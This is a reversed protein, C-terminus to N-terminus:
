HGVHGALVEPSLSSVVSVLNEERTFCFVSGEGLGLCGRCCHRSELLAREEPTLALRELPLLFVSILAGEDPGGGAGPGSRFDIRLGQVGSITQREWGIYLVDRLKPLGRLERGTARHYETRVTDKWSCDRAPAQLVSGPLRRYEYVCARSASAHTPRAPSSVLLILLGSAGLLLAAWAARRLPARSRGGAGGLRERLGEPAVAREARESVLRKVLEVEARARRCEPCGDLHAELSAREGASVEGDVLADLLDLVIKCSVTRHEM